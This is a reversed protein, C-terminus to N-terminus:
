RVIYYYIYGSVPATWTTAGGGSSVKNTNNNLSSTSPGGNFGGIASTNAGSMGRVQNQFVYEMVSRLPTVGFYAVGVDYKIQAVCINDREDGDHHLKSADLNTVAELAARGGPTSTNYVTYKIDTVRFTNYYIRFGRHKVYDASRNAGTEIVINSPKGDSLTSVLNWRAIKTIIDGDLYVIGSNLASIQNAAYYKGLEKDRDTLGSPHIGGSGGFLGYALDDLNQWLGLISTRGPSTASSTNYYDVNSKLFNKFSESKYISNYIAEQTGGEFFRGSVAEIGDKDLIAEANGTNLLAGGNGSPNQKYTEQSFYDCSRSITRTFITKMYASSMSINYYEVTISAIAILLITGVLVKFVTKVSM